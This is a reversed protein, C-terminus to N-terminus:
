IEGKYVITIGDYTMPQKGASLDIISLRKHYLGVAGELLSGEEDPGRHSIADAMHKLLAANNFQGSNSIIGVIGCM